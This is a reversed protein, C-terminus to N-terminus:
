YLLDFVEREEAPLLKIKDHVERWAALGSPEHTHDSKEPLGAASVIGAISAHHAGEGEPGYYHKVLDLLARRIQLGALGFFERASQPPANKLAKLLRLL